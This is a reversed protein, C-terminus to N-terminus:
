MTELLDPAFETAEAMLQTPSLNSYAETLREIAYTVLTDMDMGEVIREALATAM